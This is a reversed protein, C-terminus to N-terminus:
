AVGSGGNMQCERTDGALSENESRNSRRTRAMIAGHSLVSGFLDLGGDVRVHRQAFVDGGAVRVPCGDRVQEGVVDDVDIRRPTTHFADVSDPLEEVLGHLAELVPVEGDLVHRDGAVRHHDLPVLEQGAGAGVPRSVALGADGGQDVRAVALEGVLLVQEVHGVHTFGERGAALPQRGPSPKM